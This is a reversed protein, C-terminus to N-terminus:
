PEEAGGRIDHSSGAISDSGQQVGSTTPTPKLAQYVPLPIAWLLLTPNRHLVKQIGIDDTIEMKATWVPGIGMRLTMERAPTM